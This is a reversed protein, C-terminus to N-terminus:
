RRRVGSERAQMFRAVVCKWRLEPDADFYIHKLKPQNWRWTLSQAQCWGQAPHPKGPQDPVRPIVKHGEKSYVPQDFGLAIEPGTSLESVTTLPCLSVTSTTAAGPLVPRGWAKCTRCRIHLTSDGRPTVRHTSPRFMATGDINDLDNRSRSLDERKTSAYLRLNAESRRVSNQHDPLDLLFPAGPAQM